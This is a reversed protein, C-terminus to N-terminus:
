SCYLPNPNGEADDFYRHCFEEIICDKRVPQGTITFLNQDNRDDCLRQIHDPVDGRELWEQVLENITYLKITVVKNDYYM